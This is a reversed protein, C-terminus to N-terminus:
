SKEITETIEFLKVKDFKCIRAIINFPIMSIKINYNTADNNYIRRAAQLQSEVKELNKQLNLFQESSKLKPYNEVVTIVNNMKTNLIEGIKLDKTDAFQNRLETLEILAREEYNMYGKVIEILNPILDFRQQCYVDIGSKSQEVKIKLKVISNYQLFIITIIIIVILTTVIGIIM